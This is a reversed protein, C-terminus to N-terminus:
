ELMGMIEETISKLKELDPGFVDIQLGSGMMAEMDGMMSNSVTVECDMDKTKEEISNCIANIQSIDTYEEKPLIFYSYNTYNEAIIYEYAQLQGHWKM